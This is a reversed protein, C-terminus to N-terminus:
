SLAEAYSFSELPNARVPENRRDAPPGGRVMSLRPTVRQFSSGHTQTIGQKRQQAHTRLRAVVQLLLEGLRDAMDPM